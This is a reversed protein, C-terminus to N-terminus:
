ESGPNGLIVFKRFEAKGEPDLSRLPVEYCGSYFHRQFLPVAGLQPWKGGDPLRILRAGSAGDLIPESTAALLAARLRRGAAAARLPSRFFPLLNLSCASFSRVGPM